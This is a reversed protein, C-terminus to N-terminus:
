LAGLRLHSPRGDRRHQQGDTQARRQEIKDLTRGHLMQLTASVELGFLIVLWMLYVWFMFLPILGLSGYLQSISVANELYAGLVHRGIALLVAAMFAGFM